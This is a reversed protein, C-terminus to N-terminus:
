LHLDSEAQFSSASILESLTVPLGAEILTQYQELYYANNPHLIAQVQDHEPNIFNFLDLKSRDIFQNVTHIRSYLSLAENWTPFSTDSPFLLREKHGNLIFHQDNLIVCLQFAQVNGSRTWERTEYRYRQSHIRSLYPYRTGSHEVVPCMQIYQELMFDLFLTEPTYICELVTPQITHTFWTHFPEWQMPDFPAPKSRNPYQIRLGHEPHYSAPCTTGDDMAIDWHGYERLHFIPQLRHIPEWIRRFSKFINPFAM